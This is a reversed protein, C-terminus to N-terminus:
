TNAYNQFNRKSDIALKIGVHCLLVPSFAEIIKYKNLNKANCYLIHNIKHAASIIQIGNKNSLIQLTWEIQPTNESQM